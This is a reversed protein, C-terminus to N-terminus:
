ARAKKSKHGEAGRLQRRKFAATALEALMKETTDLNVCSDTISQGYVLKDAEGLTLTQKGEVLNSEIMVGIVDSVGSAVLKAVEGSVKPQKRFDKGSNGHSCDIILTPRLGSASMTDAANQVSKQDYNTGGKGGRLIVHTDANGTTEVIAAGGNETVSLFSHPHRASVVADTAIKIDGSTANKFGVPMSLGSTLQRHVQSETTRAGVAGWSVLDCIYQPTITDLWEVGVPVGTSVLDILLSRASQLGQNIDFTGDLHPDNILGKWGVTTRPKEFYVRMVVFIDDKLARAIEALKLAYARASETDHISCPGVICLLRDDEGNVIRSIQKRSEFVKDVECSSMPLKQRVFDPSLLARMRKIRVNLIKSHPTCDQSNVSTMNIYCSSRSRLNPRLFFTRHRNGKQVTYDLSRLRLPSYNSFRHM